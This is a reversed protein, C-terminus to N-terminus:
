LVKNLVRRANGGAIKRVEEDNLGKAKLADIWRPLQLYSGLVANGTGDMDTGLGVHDIGVAEVLRLTNDVFEDFSKNFASPWAAIVGGTQAVAKAHEATITRRSLPRVGDMKLLSHSLIIPADSLSAVDKVTEESAHAVDIVMRLKNMRGVVEKGASSLGHYRPSETQLDGLENPHYHVLQVSRVGDQYMQELRDAQGELFDGGECAIYAATKKEQYSQDLDSARTALKVAPNNLIEKLDSMQRLYDQWAENPEYARTPKVGDLGVRIVKVDAVLSIFAGALHITNMERLTKAIQYNGPYGEIGKAFFTGPHSHFDFTLYDPSALPPSPLSDFWNLRLLSTGAFATFANQLFRRRKVM